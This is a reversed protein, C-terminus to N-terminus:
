IRSFTSFVQSYFNVCIKTSFTINMIMGNYQNSFNSEKEFYSYINLNIWINFDM